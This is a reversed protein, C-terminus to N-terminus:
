QCQVHLTALNNEQKLNNGIDEMPSELVIEMQLISARVKSASPCATIKHDAKGCM